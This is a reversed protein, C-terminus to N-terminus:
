DASATAPWLRDADELASSLPILEDGILLELGSVAYMLALFVQRDDRGPEADTAEALVAYADTLVRWDAPSELPAALTPRHQQWASSSFERGFDASARGEAGKVLQAASEQLEQAVLRAALRTESSARRQENHAERRDRRHALVANPVTAILSGVVAGGSAIIAAGYADISV